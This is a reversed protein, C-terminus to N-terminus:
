SDREETESVARSDCCSLVMACPAQGENSLHKMKDTLAGLDHDRFRKYGDLLKRIGSEELAQAAAPNPKITPAM